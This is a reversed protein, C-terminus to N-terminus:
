EADRRRAGRDHREVRAPAGALHAVDNPAGTAAHPHHVVLEHVARGCRSVRRSRWGEDDRQVRERTDAGPGRRDVRPHAGDSGAVRAVHLERRAGGTARLARHQAVARHHRRGARPDVDHTQPRVVPVRDDARHRVDAAVLGTHEGRHGRTGRRQRDRAEVGGRQEVEDLGLLRGHQLTRGGHELGQEIADLPAAEGRARKTDRDGARRRDRRWQQAPHERGEAELAHVRAVAERLRGAHARDREGAVRELEDGLAGAAGDVADVDADDVLSSCGDRGTASALDVDAAGTDHAAVEVVVVGRTPGDSAAPQRGAVDTPDVVGPVQADDVPERVEHDHAPVVHVRGLDLPDEPLVRRYRLYRHDAHGVGPQALNRDREHDRLGAGVDVTVRECGRYALAQGAVLRRPM